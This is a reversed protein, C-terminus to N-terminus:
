VSLYLRLGKNSIRISISKSISPKPKQFVMPKKNQFGITKIKLLRHNKM